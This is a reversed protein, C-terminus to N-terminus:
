HHHRVVVGNPGCTTSHHFPCDANADVSICICLLSLPFFSSPNTPSPPSSLPPPPLPPLAVTLHSVFPSSSFFSVSTSTRCICLRREVDADADVCICLTSIETTRKSREKQRVKRRRERKEGEKGLGEDKKRREDSQMQTPALPFMSCHEVDVGICIDLPRKTM